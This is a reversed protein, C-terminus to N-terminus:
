SHVALNCLCVMEAVAQNLAQEAEKAQALEHTLQDVRDEADKVTNAM